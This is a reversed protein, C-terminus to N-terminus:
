IEWLASTIQYKRSLEYLIEEITFTVQEGLTEYIKDEIADTIMVPSIIIAEVKELSSELTYVPLKKYRANSSQDIGYKLIDTMEWIELEDYFLRGLEGIGYLAISSIGRDSFFEGFNIKANKLRMWQQLLQFKMYNRSNEFEKNYYMEKYNKMKDIPKWM